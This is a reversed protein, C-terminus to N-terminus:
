GSRRHHDVLSGFWIGTLATIVLFIGSVVGTALM